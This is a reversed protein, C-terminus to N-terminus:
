FCWQWIRWNLFIYVTFKHASFKSEPWKWLLYMKEREHIEWFLFKSGWNFDMVNIIFFIGEVKKSGLFNGFASLYKKRRVAM